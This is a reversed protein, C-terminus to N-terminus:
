PCNVNVCAILANTWSETRGQRRRSRQPLNARSPTNQPAAAPHQGVGLVNIIKNAWIGSAATDEATDLRLRLPLIQFDILREANAILAPVAVFIAWRSKYTHMCVYAYMHGTACSSAL